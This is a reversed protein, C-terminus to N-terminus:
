KPALDIGIMMVGVAAIWSGVARVAIAAWSRGRVFAHTGSMTLAIVVYGATTVGLVFALISGGPPLALGNGYGHGVGVLAGLGLLAAAPLPRALAVLGGLAVFSLLAFESSRPITPLLQAIGAGLCVCAPFVLLLPRAVNEHHLGALLGLALWPLLNELATLPHYLGAYYAGFRNSVLHAHASAPALLCAALALRV